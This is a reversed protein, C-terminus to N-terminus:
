NYFLKFKVTNKTESILKSPKVFHDDYKDSNLYSYIHINKLEKRKTTKM